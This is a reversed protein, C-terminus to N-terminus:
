RLFVGRALQRGRCWSGKHPIASNAMREHSKSAFSLSTLSSNNSPFRWPHPVATLYVLTPFDHQPCTHEWPHEYIGKQLCFGTQAHFCTIPAQKNGFLPPPSSSAPFQCSRRVGSSTLPWPAAQGRSAMCVLAITMEPTVPPTGLTRRHSNWVILSGQYQLTRSPTQFHHLELLSQLWWM